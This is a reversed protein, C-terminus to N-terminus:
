DVIWVYLNKPGPVGLAVMLEIDATCSPDTIFVLHQSDNPEAFVQHKDTRLM